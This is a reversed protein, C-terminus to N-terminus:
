EEVIRVFDGERLNRQGQVVVTDGAALGEVVEVRRGDSIGTKVEVRDAKRNKVRYAYFKGEEEILADLPLVLVSDKKATVIQVTAFMGPKLAFDPNPVEVQVRFSRATIDAVPNKTTVKGLFSRGPFTEVSVRAPMGKQIRYFEKETVNVVVKVRSLDALLVIGMGGPMTPNITEGENLFKGAIVGSFPARMVAVALNHRILNVAARAQELQARAAKYGLEVKDFQQDSVSGKQKLELMRQYNRRADEFNAEAVALAAEAQKRQLHMTTTDLVALVQGKQVYQGEDVFIKAVKGPIDPFVKVQRVAQIDGTYTYVEEISQPALVTARVAITRLEEGTKQAEKGGCGALAVVLVGAAAAVLVTRWFTQKKMM